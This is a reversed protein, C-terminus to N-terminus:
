HYGLLNMFTQCQENSNVTHLIEEDIEKRWHDHKFKKSRYTSYYKQIIGKSKIHNVSSSFFTQIAQEYENNTLSGNKKHNVIELFFNMKIQRNMSNVNKSQNIFNKASIGSQTRMHNHLYYRAYSLHQRANVFEFLRKVNDLPNEVLDEYKLVMVRNSLDPNQFSFYAPIFFKLLLNRFKIVERVAMYDSVGNRCITSPNSTGSIWEQTQQNISHITARPDRLLLIM